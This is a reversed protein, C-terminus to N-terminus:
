NQIQQIYSLIKLNFTINRNKKYIVKGLQTKIGSINKINSSGFKEEMIVQNCEM